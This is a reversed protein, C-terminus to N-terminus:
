SSRSVSKGKPMVALPTLKRAVSNQVEGTMMKEM